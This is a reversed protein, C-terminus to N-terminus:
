MFIIEPRQLHKKIPKLRNGDVRFVIEPRARKELLSKILTKDELQSFFSEMQQRTDLLAVKDMIGDFLGTTKLEEKLLREYDRVTFLKSKLSSKKLLKALPKSDIIFSPNGILFYCSLAEERKSMKRLKKLAESRENSVAIESKLCPFRNFVPRKLLEPILGRIQHYEPFLVCNLPKFGQVKCRSKQLFCCPKELKILLYLYRPNLECSHFGFYCHNLFLSPVPTNLALSLRILDFLSVEVIVDAMQCGPADCDEPCLMNSETVALDAQYKFYREIM